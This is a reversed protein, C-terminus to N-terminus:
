HRKNSYLFDILNSILATWGTQHSAGLGRGDNGHFHEFFLLHDKFHPDTQLKQCSGFAARKGHEDTRYLDVLSSAFGLAMEDLTVPKQGPAEVVLQTGFAHSLRKLTEIMMCNIPFWVPGRWNSNGGKIKEKSEGPEYGLTLGHSMVPHKEHHRSVSRLGYPSRFEEPDWIRALFRKMEDASLLGFLHKSGADHLVSQVCVDTLGPRNQLIWQYAPYFEKYQKLEEDDWVDCAFFPIIGVLSRIPLQEIDGNPCRLVSYFFADEEHWLDYPRWYGKRMAATVFLFHHFFKIGLGEYVPNKKSLILAIRMLNLCMMSIWGSADAQDLLFGEPMTESRDTFGINDMGLFGGEFINNGRADVRNIWWAFNLLLKHFCRELFALDEKGTRGKEWEYLKLVAWSQVPPNADSFEWEYAPVAGNPHQFQDFLLLWLQYKAFELDVLAYALAHFTLDWAAFWPYEWKDPMAFVRLSSIH